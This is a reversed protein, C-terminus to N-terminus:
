GNIQVSDTLEVTIDFDEVAEIPSIIVRAALVAKKLTNVKVIQYSRIGQNTKMRDLLPTIESKFNFWLTDTNPSFSYKRGARYITKKLDCCLSRINLFDSAVLQVALSNNTIPKNLPHMTRNGWLIYGFPRINTITNLAIHNVNKDNIGAERPQFIAVDSDGYKNLPVFPSLSTTGSNSGAIAFWSPNAKVFEGYCVLYDLYGPFVDRVFDYSVNKVKGDVILKVAVTFSTIFNPTTTGGYSGYQEYSETASWTVAPREINASYFKKNSDTNMWSDIETSKKFYSPAYGLAIADGRDGAVKTVIRNLSNVFSDRVPRKEDDNIYPGQKSNIDIYPASIFKFDYKGRDSFEEFKNTIDNLMNAYPSEEGPEAPNIDFTFDPEVDSEDGSDLDTDYKLDYLGFYQVPLGKSLTLYAMAFGKDKIFLYMINRLKNNVEEYEEEGSEFVTSDLIDFIETVRSKFSALSQYEGDLSVLEKDSNYVEIKVGSILAMNEIYTIAENGTRDIERINVSPM